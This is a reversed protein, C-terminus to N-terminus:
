DAAVKQERRYHERRCLAPLVLFTALAATVMAAATLGGVTQLPRAEGLTLVFFGAGVMLANTWISPGAKEAAECAASTMRDTASTSAM